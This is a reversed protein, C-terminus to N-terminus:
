GLKFAENWEGFVFEGLEKRSRTSTEMQQLREAALLEPEGQYGLAIAAGLHYEEPIGLAHRAKDRDYGGMQHTSLGLEAAQLVLMAASQGLDYVAAGNPGGKQTLGNAVGLILVPAKAAWLQNGEFLSNFIKGYPESGKRGVVYRWPQENSSSSTWRVAEFIAKLDADSVPKDAFARPSWRRLVAPIVNDAAPAQKLEHVELASLSM